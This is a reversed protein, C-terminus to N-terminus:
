FLWIAMALISAAGLSLIGLDVWYTCFLDNECINLKSM